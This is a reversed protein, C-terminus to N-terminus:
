KVTMGLASLVAGQFKIWMGWAVFGIISLVSVQIGRKVLEAKADDWRKAIWNRRDLAEKLMPGYTSTFDNLAKSQECIRSRLETRNARTEKIFEDITRQLAEVRMDDARRNTHQAM